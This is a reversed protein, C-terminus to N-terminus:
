PSLHQERQPLPGPERLPTTDLATLEIARTIDAVSLVGCVHGDVTVAALRHGGAQLARTADVLPADPHLVTIRERPTQIDGLRVSARADPQVRAMRSVSIMGTLAGDLGLVPFTRHPHRRAVDAAFQAVSQKTYGCVAPSTMVDEVRIGALRRTWIADATEARAAGALFWGLLALWLGGLNGLFLVEATGGAILLVGVVMGARAAIRQAAVRDGRVWWILAALVRGGDLPAGPLLNFVALVINVVALWALGTIAVDGADVAAAVISAGAFIAAAAISALPGAAAILLDARAHPAQGDLQAVGGLLWLTIRRVRVGYHRATLAHALEHALLAALFVVAIVAAVAWYVATPQGPAGAPLVSIALGQALLLAIVLVSWHMGIPIGAVRGLQVTSRM